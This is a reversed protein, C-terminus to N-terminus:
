ASALGENRYPGEREFRSIEEVSIVWEAHPGRLANLRKEARLQGERCLQQVRFLSLRLRKAAQQTNLFNQPPAAMRELTESIQELLQKFEDYRRKMGM